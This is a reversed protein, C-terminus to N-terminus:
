GEMAVQQSAALQRDKFANDHLNNHLCSIELTKTYRLSISPWAARRAPGRDERLVFGPPPRQSRPFRYAITDSENDLHQFLPCMSHGLAAPFASFPAATSDKIPGTVLRRMDACKLPVYVISSPHIM